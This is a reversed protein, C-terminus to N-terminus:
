QSVRAAAAVEAADEWLHRAVEEPPATAGIAHELMLVRDCAVLAAGTLSALEGVIVAVTPEASSLLADLCAAAAHAMLARGPSSSTGGGDDGRSTAAEGGSTRDVLCIVPFAFRRALAILRLAKRLGIATDDLAGHPERQIGVIAVSRGGVEGLGAVIAPDDGAIRDGRIGFFGDVIGAAVDAAQPRLAHGALARRELADLKRFAQRRLRGAKAELRKIERSFDVGEAELRRLEAAKRLIEVYPREFDLTGGGLGSMTM